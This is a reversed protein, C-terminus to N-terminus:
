KKTAAKKTPAPKPAPKEMPQKAAPKQQGMLVSLDDANYPYYRLSTQGTTSLKVDVRRNNAMRFEYLNREVRKKDESSINPNQETLDRVEKDTLNQEKGFAQTEISAAPVGHDVLYSKVRDARRQSLAQNFEVSGRHDCHAGLILHAEPRLQLYQKFNSVMDELRKEQSSVLGGEPAIVTPLNWPFYVSNFALRTELTAESVASEAEISGMIHLTATKTESGGCANSAHLTYTVTEDITGPSTKTPKIPISRDGSAGVTGLPDVSVSTANGASWSVTANGVQDVKSGVQHYRVEGPSVNLSAQIATNVTVNGDSTYIGGPGAATFKYDTTQNPQVTQDGSAGVAGVGSIEYKVAGDSSWTLRASDGCNIQGPTASFQGSVKQVAVEASAIGFKFRPLEKLQEGRSWPVTKRVGKGNDVVVRQNVPVDVTTTWAGAPLNGHNLVTLQYKGAPVVLEQKWVWENDEEDGHGVFFAPDTGNLLVADRDAGELTICGWPGTVTSTIAQMTVEIVLTKHGTITVTRSEPKYGYNYMDIKHEGADLIAYHGRADVVPKGDAFIYATAPSVRVILHGLEAKAPRASILLVAAIATFLYSLNRVRM